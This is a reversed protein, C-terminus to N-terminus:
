LDASAAAPNLISHLKTGLKKAMDDALNALTLQNQLSTAVEMGINPVKAALKSFNDVYSNITAAVQLATKSEDFSKAQAIQEGRATLQAILAVRVWAAIQEKTLYNATRVATLADLCKDLSISDWTILSAASDIADRILVDQQDEIVGRFVQMAKSSLLSYEEPFSVAPITVMKAPKVAKGGTTDRYRIVAHRYGAIETAKPDYNRIFSVSSEEKFAAFTTVAVNSNTNTTEM